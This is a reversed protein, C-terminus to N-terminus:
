ALATHLQSSSRAVLMSEIGGGSMQTVARREGRVGREGRCEISTPRGIRHYGDEHDRSRNISRTTDHRRWGLDTSTTAARTTTSGSKERSTARSSPIARTGPTIPHTSRRRTTVAASTGASPADGFTSGGAAPESVSQVVPDARPCPRISRITSPIVTRRPWVAEERTSFAPDRGRIQYASSGAAVVTVLADDVRLFVNVYRLTERAQPRSEPLVPNGRVRATLRRACLSRRRSIAAM